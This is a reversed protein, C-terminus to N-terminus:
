RAPLAVAREFGAVADRLTAADFQRVVQTATQEDVNAIGTRVTRLPVGDGALCEETTRGLGDLWHDDIPRVTFCDAREGAVTTHGTSRVGYAGADVAIRVIDADSLDKGAPRRYCTPGTDVLECEVRNNPRDVILSTGARHVAVGRGRAEYTTVPPLKAGDARTRTFSYAAVYSVTDGARIRAVLEAAAAPDNAPPPAMTPATTATAFLMVSGLLAASGFAVM